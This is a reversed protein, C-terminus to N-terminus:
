DDLLAQRIEAFRKKLAPDVEPYRLSLSELTEIIIHAIAYKAFYKKDAPIAYWPAWPRSTEELMTAYAQEYADWHAREQVDALAFKWHKHPHELRKLFREKQEDKSLNLWFKLVLTGNNFLHQEFQRISEYRQAWLCESAERIGQPALLEPHVKVILVEEYYSRNFVNIHGKRPLKDQCRWLFDHSLEEESPKKFYHAHCGGPDTAKMVQRVISDKGAADMGQFILLLSFRGDAYFLQQLDSIKEVAKELEALCDAKDPQNDNPATPWDKIAVQTECPINFASEPYPSAPPKKM